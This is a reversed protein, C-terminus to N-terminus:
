GSPARLSGPPGVPTPLPSRVRAVVRPCGAGASNRAAPVGLGAARMRSAGAGLPAAPAAKPWAGLGAAPDTWGEQGRWCASAWGSCAVNSSCLSREDRRTRPSVPFPRGFRGGQCPRLPAAGGEQWLSPQSDWPHPSAWHPPLSGRSGGAPPRWGRSEDLSAGCATLKRRGMPQMGFHFARSPWPVGFVQVWFAHLFPAERPPGVLLGPVPWTPSRHGQEMGAYPSPEGAASVCGRPLLSASSWLTARSLRFPRALEVNATSLWSNGPCLCSLPTSAQPAGSCYHEARAVGCAADWPGKPSALALVRPHGWMGSGHCPTSCGASGPGSCCGWSSGEVTGGSRPLEAPGRDARMPASRGPAPVPAGPGLRACSQHQEALGASPGWLGGGHSPAGWPCPLHQPM